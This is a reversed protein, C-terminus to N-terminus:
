FRILPYKRGKERVNFSMMASFDMEKWIFLVHRWCFFNIRVVGRLRRNFISNIEDDSRDSRIQIDFLFVQM